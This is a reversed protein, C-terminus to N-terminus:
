LPRVGATVPGLDCKRLAGSCARKSASGAAALSPGTSQKTLTRGPGKPRLLPGQITIEGNERRLKTGLGVLAGYERRLKAGSGVPEGNERPLKTGWGVLQDYERRLKIGWGVPEGNEERLKALWAVYGGNEAGNETRGRFLAQLIPNHLSFAVQPTKSNLSIPSSFNM